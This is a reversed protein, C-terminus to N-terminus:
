GLWLLGGGALGCGYASIVLKDFNSNRGLELLLKPSYNRVTREDEQAAWFMVTVLERSSRWRAKLENIPHGTMTLFVSIVLMLALNFPKITLYTLPLNSTKGVFYAQRKRGLPYGGGYARKCALSDHLMFKVTAVIKIHQCYSPWANTFLDKGGKIFKILWDSQAM